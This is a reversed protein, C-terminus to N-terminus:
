PLRVEWGNCGVVCFPPGIAWSRRSNTDSLFWPISALQEGHPIWCAIGRSITLLLTTAALPAPDYARVGALQTGIARGLMSSIVIGIVIGAGVLRLGTSVVM